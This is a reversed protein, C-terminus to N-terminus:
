RNFSITTGLIGAPYQLSSKLYPFESSSNHIEAIVQKLLIQLRDKVGLKYRM